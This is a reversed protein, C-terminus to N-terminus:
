AVALMWIYYHKEKVWSNLELDTLILPWWSSITCPYVTCFESNPTSVHVDHCHTSVKDYMMVNHPHIITSLIYSRVETSRDHYSPLKTMSLLRSPFLGKHSDPSPIWETWNLETWNSLGTQNRWIGHVVACWAERDMVLERLGGLGMDLSDTIGDLWRMRQRGRRRKGGFRGLMLTKELSDVRWM